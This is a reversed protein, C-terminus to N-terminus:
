RKVILALMRGEHDKHALTARRHSFWLPNELTCMSHKIAGIREALEPDGENDQRCLEALEADEALYQTAANVRPRSSIINAESVGAEQLEEMAAKNIDIGPGGFRTLTFTEPFQADFADAIDSGTEYCDGCIAPGLTAVIRDKHAGKQVMMAVTARIVGKQLGLRGCHAAAIVGAVPDALLVPLCDAAFMGLAIGSRCTVQADGEIVQVDEHMDEVDDVTTANTGITATGAVVTGSADFGFSDNDRYIEDIDVAEGSHVQCILSLKAGLETALAERNRRVAEPDDGGKGGLNFHGFDGGSAGGLRTTYVVTIDPSIAIPITVPVPNGDEDTASVESSDVIGSTKGDTAGEAAERELGSGAAHESKAKAIAESIAEGLARSLDEEQRAEAADDRAMEEDIIKEADEIAQQAALAEMDGDPVNASAAGECFDNM